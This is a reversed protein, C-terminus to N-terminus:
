RFLSVFCTAYSEIMDIYRVESLTPEDVKSQRMDDMPISPLTGCPWIVELFGFMILVASAM